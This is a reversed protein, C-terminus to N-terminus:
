ILVFVAGIQTGNFIEFSIQKNLGADADSASIRVITTGIEVNEYVSVNCCLPPHFIPINDNEDMVNVTIQWNFFLRYLLFPLHFAKVIYNFFLVDGQIHYSSLYRPPVQLPM